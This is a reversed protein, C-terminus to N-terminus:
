IRGDVARVTFSFNSRISRTNYTTCFRACYDFISIICSNKTGILICMCEEKTHCSCTIGHRYFIGICATFVNGIIIVKYLCFEFVNKTCGGCCPLHLMQVGKGFRIGM